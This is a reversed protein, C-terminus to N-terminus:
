APRLLGPVESVLRAVAIGVENFRAIKAEATEAQGGILAGAHGMRRGPPATLGAMFAVVPKSMNSAYFECAALEDKGGIEGVLVVQETDADSEFMALLDVFRTGIVPDGGVGVCTSQGIGAATLAAVIEYMLTGSRSAVGVKGPTHIEGPMIGIKCRGPSIIGPCNPGILRAGTRGSVEIVDLTPVGETICVILEIGADVAELMASRAHAAPVYVVSAAAGTASRAQAVTDFVPVGHVEQGAKGPTVGAVIRTGYELMKRTHFAGDRGTIGQVMVRTDHDILISM